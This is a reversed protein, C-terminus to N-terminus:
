MPATPLQNPSRRRARWILHLHRKSAQIYRVASAQQVWSSPLPRAIPPRNTLQGLKTLRLLIFLAFYFSVTEGYASYTCYSGDIADLFTNLFGSSSQLGETYALDDTQFIISNQPYIIPYSIQLDLNSEGGAALQPAFGGDIGELKPM